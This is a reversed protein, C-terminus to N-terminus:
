QINVRIWANPSDEVSQNYAYFSWATPYVSADMEGLKYLQLSYRNRNNQSAKGTDANITVTHWGDSTGGDVVEGGVFDFGFVNGTQAYFNKNVAIKSVDWSVTIVASGSGSLILNYADYGTPADGAEMENINAKWGNSSTSRSARLGIIRGLTELDNYATGGDSVTPVAKLQVCIDFDDDLNWGSPFRIVYSNETSGSDSHVLTQPTITGSLNAASLVLSTGDPQNSVVTVTRTGMDEATLPVGSSNTLVAEIRYNINEPYRTTEDQENYNWLYIDVDYSGTAKEVKYVPQYSATMVGGEDSLTKLLNSSFMMGSGDKSVMVRALYSYQSEYEAYSVVTILCIMAAVLWITIWQKKLIHIFQKKM